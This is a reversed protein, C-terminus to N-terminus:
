IGNVVVAIMAVSLPRSSTGSPLDNFQPEDATTGMRMVELRSDSGRGTSPLQKSSRWM